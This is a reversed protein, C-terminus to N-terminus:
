KIWERLLSYVVSTLPIFLIMGFIGLLGGGIVVAVLVWIAPLGISGGVVRPYILNNEIQQVVLFIIVFALAQWPNILLILFTGIGLAIYAGAMPILATFAILVSILLAYPFGFVLLIVLFISGLILAEIFQGTFFSSFILHALTFFHKLPRNIKVPLTKDMLRLMQRQLKEKGLLLNIAFILSIMLSVLWGFVSSVLNVTSTFWGAGSGKLLNLTWNILDTYTLNFSGALDTLAPYSAIFQTTWTQARALLDPLNNSLDTVSSVLQPIVLLLMAVLLSVVLLLTLVLSLARCLGAKIKGHSLRAVLHEISRMPLNLVYAFVMGQLLPMTVAILSKLVTLGAQINELLWYLGISLALVLILTRPTWTKTENSM